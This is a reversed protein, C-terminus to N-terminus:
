WKGIPCHEEAMKMKWKLICGCKECRSGTFFECESCIEKLAEVAEATRRPMGAAVDRAVAQAATRAQTAISPMGQSSGIIKM